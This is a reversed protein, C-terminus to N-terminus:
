DTSTVPIPFEQSDRHERETASRSWLILTPLHWRNIYGYLDEPRHTTEALTRVADCLM